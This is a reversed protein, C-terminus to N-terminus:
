KALHFDKIEQDNDVLDIYYELARIVLDDIQLSVSRAYRLMRKVKDNDTKLYFRVYEGQVKNIGNRIEVLSKKKCDQLLYELMAERTKKQRELKEEESEILVRELPEFTQTSNVKEADFLPEEIQSNEELYRAYYLLAKEMVLTRHRSSLPLLADKVVGEGVTIKLLITSM